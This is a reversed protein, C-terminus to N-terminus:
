LENIKKILKIKSFIDMLTAYISPSTEIAIPTDDLINILDKKNLSDYTSFRINATLTNVYVNSKRPFNISIKVLIILDQGAENFWEMIFKRIDELSEFMDLRVDAILVYNYRHILGSNYLDEYDQITLPKSM